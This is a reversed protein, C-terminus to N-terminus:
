GGAFGRAAAGIIQGVVEGIAAKGAEAGAAGVANTLSNGLNGSIGDPSKGMITLAKSTMQFVDDGDSDTDRFVLGNIELWRLIEQLYRSPPVNSGRIYTVGAEQPIGSPLVLDQDPTECLEKFADGLTGATFWQRIPFNIYLHNFVLAVTLNFAEIQPEHGPDAPREM